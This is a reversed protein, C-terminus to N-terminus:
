VTVVEINAMRLSVCECPATTMSPVAISCNTGSKSFVNLSATLARTTIEQAPDKEM